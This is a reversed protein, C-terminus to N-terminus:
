FKWGDRAQIGQLLASGQLLLSWGMQLSVPASDAQTQLRLVSVDGSDREAVPVGLYLM